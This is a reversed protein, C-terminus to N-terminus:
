NVTEHAGDEEVRDYSAESADYVVTVNTHTGSAREAVTIHTPENTRLTTGMRSLQELWAWLRREISAASNPTHQDNLQTGLYAFLAYDIRLTMTAHGRVALLAHDPEWDLALAMTGTLLPVRLELVDLPLADLALLVKPLTSQYRHATWLPLKSSDNRRSYFYNLAGVCHATAVRRTTGDSAAAQRLWTQFAQWPTLNSALLIMGDHHHFYFARKRLAFLMAETAGLAATVSYRAAFTADWTDIPINGQALAHDWYAHVTTAPDFTTRLAEFLVGRGQYVLSALAYEHQGSEAHMRAYSRDATLLYALFALLDRPTVHIGQLRVAELLAGLREQFRPTVLLAANTALDTLPDIQTFANVHAVLRMIAHQVFEPHLVQRHSLDFVQVTAPSITELPHYALADQWQTYASRIQTAVPSTQGVVSAGLEALVAANMAVVFPRGSLLAQAWLRLLDEARRSSADYEVVPPVPLNEFRSALYRLLHTKGDGPSGTLVVSHGQAVSRYLLDDLPTPIHLQSLWDDSTGDAYGSTGRYLQQLRRYSGVLDSPPRTADASIPPHTPHNQVLQGLLLTDPNFARLRALIADQRVRPMLWRTRWYDIIAKTQIAADESAAFYYQPSTQADHLYATGNTALLAGYVLRPMAHRTLETSIESQDLTMLHSLAHRVTRLKPSAGEGFVHNVYLSARQDEPLCEEMFAITEDSIHLTGYGGTKGLKRWRVEPMDPGLLGAPLRLRNYQSSGAEYLSTTGVFVLEAPRVVTEGKMRSAIDSKQRGYRERYDAVVQPSIMLLAVLKGGLVENYPPIAGCVNLELLSTGIHRMKVARLATRVVARRESQTLYTAWETPSRLKVTDRWNRLAGRASLLQALRTARKARYLAHEASLSIKGLTSRESISEPLGTTLAARRAETAHRAVSRLHAILREDPAELAESDCLDSTDLDALANMVFRELEAFVAAVGAHDETSLSALHSLINQTSWGLTHDRAPSRIVANELSAIGMVAHCPHARDRILYRLTRGPTSEAPVTWTFRFYRWIDGLRQGSYPCTAEETVLQLYPDVGHIADASLRAALDSGDAILSTIPLRAISPDEMRAVFAAAEVVRAERAARMSTRVFAKRADRVAPTTRTQDFDPPSLLMTQYQWDPIWGARLLDRLLSWTARYRRRQFPNILGEVEAWRMEFECYAEREVLGELRILLPIANYFRQAFLGVLQPRFEIM